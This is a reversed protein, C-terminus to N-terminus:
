PRKLRVDLVASVGKRTQALGRSIAGKIDEPNEIIEGYAGSAKALDAYNPSPSIDLGPFNNIRHAASDPYFKQLSRRTSFHESNNFIITLFPTQYKISAWIASTPAGYVFAGDGVLAIVDKDPAALKVGVAAGIAWGLSAGGSVLLDGKANRSLINHVRPRNTVTEELIVSDEPLEQAICRILWKPNIPKEESLEIDENLLAAERSRHNQQIKDKRIDIETNNVEVMNKKLSELLQTLAKSSDAQVFIDAPFSLLPMSEKVPEIDICAIYAEAKPHAEAPIWPVDCDIILIMDSNEIHEESSMGVWAPNDTPFGFSTPTTTVQAGSIDVIKELSSISSKNRGSRGVIILPSDAALMNKAITNISEPDAQPSVSVQHRAPSPFKVTNIKQMLSERPVVLYVPGSPESSAVQMARNIVVGSTEANRLEYDWKTFTRVIGAQDRQEQIWHIPLDRGGPVENLFTLPSRGAVILIAARSRQANHLAGGLQATGADVHVLVAQPKGTIQYYGHAASLGMSEDLCLIVEPVKEKKEIKRALAEQVPFTDTGSNIFIYEIGYMILAEVFADAGDNVNLDIYTVTSSNQKKSDM